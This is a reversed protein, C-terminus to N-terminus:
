IPGKISFLQDSAAKRFHTLIILQNDYFLLLLLIYDILISIHKLYDESIVLLYNLMKLVIDFLNNICELRSM